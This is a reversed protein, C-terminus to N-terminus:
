QQKKEAAELQEVVRSMGKALLTDLLTGTLKMTPEDTKRFSEESRKAEPLVTDALRIVSPENTIEQADVGGSSGMAFKAGLEKIPQFYGEPVEKATTAILKGVESMRRDLSYGKYKSSTAIAYMASTMNTTIAQASAQLARSISGGYAEIHEGLASLGYQLSQGFSELGKRVDEGYRMSGNAAIKAAEVQSAGQAYTTLLQTAREIDFQVREIMKPSHQEFYYERAKYLHWVSVQTMSQLTAHDNGVTAMAKEGIRLNIATEWDKAGLRMFWQRAAVLDTLDEVGKVEKEAGRQAYGAAILYAIAGASTHVGLDSFLRFAMILQDLVRDSLNGKTYHEKAKTYIEQARNLSLEAVERYLQKLITTRKAQKDLYKKDGKRLSAITDRLERLTVCESINTGGCMYCTGRVGEYDIWRHECATCREMGLKLTFTDNM